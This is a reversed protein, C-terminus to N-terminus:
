SCFRLITHCLVNPNTLESSKHVKQQSQNIGVKESTVSFDTLTYQSELSALSLYDRRADNSHRERIVEGQM